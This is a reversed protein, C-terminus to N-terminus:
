SYKQWGGRGVKAGEDAKRVYNHIIMKAGLENMLNLFFFIRLLCM